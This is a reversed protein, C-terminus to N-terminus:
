MRAFVLERTRGSDDELLIKSKKRTEEQLFRETAIAHRLVETMTTGRQQALERLADAAEQSVNVSLKVTDM